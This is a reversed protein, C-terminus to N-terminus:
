AVVVPLVGYVGASVVIDHAVTVVELRQLPPPPPLVQPAQGVGKDAGGVVNCWLDERASAIRLETVPPANPDYQVFHQNALWGEQGVCGWLCLRLHSLTHTHTYIPTHTERTTRYPFYGM